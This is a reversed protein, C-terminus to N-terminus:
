SNSGEPRKGKGDVFVRLWAELMALTWLKEGVRRGRPEGAADRGKRLERVYESRFLGRRNLSRKGLLDRILRKLPGKIWVTMPVSMGLKKRWVIEDPLLGSTARKLIYKECSGKLKDTPPVTFSAEALARDFLPMQVRLGWGSAIAEARPIINYMGKLGIDVLRVRDLYAASNGNLLGGVFSRRADFGEISAIFRPSYLDDELGYFRHYSDLYAEERSREPLSAAFVERALMPKATWGGFLQDGGEGNFVKGLGERRAAEGLLYQPVTVPDGYPLDLKWVFDWFSRRIERGRMRVLTHPIGLHRAVTKAEALEVSHRRFDASFAHVPVDHESLMAAVCASDLGGSLYLGVRASGVARRATAEQVLDRLASPDLRERDNRGLSEGVSYRPEM